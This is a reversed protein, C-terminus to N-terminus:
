LYFLLNGVEYIYGLARAWDPDMDNRHFRVASFINNSIQGLMMRRITRLCVLFEEDTNDVFLYSHHNSERDLSEFLAADEGIAEFSQGLLKHRNLIMAALAEKVALDEGSTEAYMVRALKYQIRKEDDYNEIITFIPKSIQSVMETKLVVNM